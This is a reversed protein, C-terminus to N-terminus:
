RLCGQRGSSSPCTKLPQALLLRKSVKELTIRSTNDTTSSNLVRLSCRSVRTVESLKTWGAQNKLADALSADTKYSSISNKPSTISYCCINTQTKVFGQESIVSPIANPFPYSAKKLLTKWCRRGVIEIKCHKLFGLWKVPQKTATTNKAKTQM